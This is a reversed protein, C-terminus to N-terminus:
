PTCTMEQGAVRITVSDRVKFTSCVVVVLKRLDLVLAVLVM